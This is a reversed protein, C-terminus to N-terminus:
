PLRPTGAHQQYEHEARTWDEIASGGQRGRAEWYGYAIRAIAETPNETNAPAAAAAVVSEASMTKSHKAAQVRPTGPKAARASKASAAPSATEKSLAQKRAM